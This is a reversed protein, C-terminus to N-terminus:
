DYFPYVKLASKIQSKIENSIEPVKCGCSTSSSIGYFIDILNHDSTTKKVIGPCNCKYDTTNITGLIKTAYHADKLSIPNQLTDLAFKQM